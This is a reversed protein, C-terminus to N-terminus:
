HSAPVNTVKALICMASDQAMVYPQKVEKEFIKIMMRKNTEIDHDVESAYKTNLSGEIVSYGTMM